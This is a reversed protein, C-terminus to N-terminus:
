PQTTTPTVNRVMSTVAPASPAGPMRITGSSFSNPQSVASIEEAIASRNTSNPSIAGNAATNRLRNPTLRMTIMASPVIMKPKATERKM